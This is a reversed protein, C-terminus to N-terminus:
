PHASQSLTRQPYESAPRTQTTVRGPVRRVVIGALVGPANVLASGWISQCRCAGPKQPSDPGSIFSQTARKGRGQLGQSACRLSPYLLFPMGPMAGITRDPREVAPTAASGSVSLPSYTLDPRAIAQM